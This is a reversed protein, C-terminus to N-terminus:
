RSFKENPAVIISAARESYFNKDDVEEGRGSDTLRTEASPAFIKISTTLLSRSVVVDRSTVTCKQRGKEERKERERKRKRKEKGKSRLAVKLFLSASLFIASSSRLVFRNFRRPHRTDALHARSAVATRRLISPTPPRSLTYDLPYAGWRKSLSVYQEEFRLYNTHQHRLRARLSPRTFKKEGERRKKGIKM